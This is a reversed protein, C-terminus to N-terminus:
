QRYLQRCAPYNLYNCAWLIVRWHARGQEEGARKAVTEERARQGPCQPSIPDLGGISSRRGEVRLDPRLDVDIDPEVGTNEAIIENNALNFIAAEPSTLTGGDIFVDPVDYGVLGGWTRRGILPGVKAQRFLWPFMDGGSGAYGNILMAKPGDVASVDTQEGTHRVFVGVTSRRALMEVFGVPLSGGGNWREDVILADKQTQGFFGRALDIAGQEGTDRVHVYGIRGKSLKDVLALNSDVFDWYRISAESAVPKVRITRAGVDNPTSNVKLTIYRNATGILLSAPNTADSVPVGDIELLYDGKAVSIGPAALPAQATDDFNHGWYIKSLRLHGNSAEYDAGLYGIPAVPRPVGLDGGSVYAHSTGLEGIMQALVYNLDSRSNVYDLDRAYHDGVAQWNLGHMGFDFYHDREFRWAEWFIQRWEDHFDIVSEVQSVNVRGQGVASPPGPHIDIVGLVGPALYALKNRNFNFKTAVAGPGLVTTAERSTLEFHRIGESAKFFVGNRAGTLSSYSDEPLPLAVMREALGPLDINTSGPTPSSSSTRAEEEEDSQVQLPDHAAKSLPMVYLRAKMDASPTQVATQNTTTLGFTRSSVVYLYKSGTRTLRLRWFRRLLGSRCHYTRGSSVDYLYLADHNNRVGAVYAIWKSDPSWDICADLAPLGFTADAM